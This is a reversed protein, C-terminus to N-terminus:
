KEFHQVKIWINQTQSFRGQFRWSTNVQTKFFSGKVDDPLIRHKNEVGIKM